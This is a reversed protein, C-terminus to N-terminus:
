IEDAKRRTSIRIGPRDDPTGVFEIGARELASKIATLSSTRGAPVGDAAEFRKVTQIGVTALDALDAATLRLAARAARIQEGTIM